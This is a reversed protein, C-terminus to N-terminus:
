QCQFTENPATGGCFNNWSKRGKLSNEVKIQFVFTNKMPRFCEFQKVVIVSRSYRNKREEVKLSLKTTASSVCETGFFTSNMRTKAKESTVDVRKREDDNLDGNQPM